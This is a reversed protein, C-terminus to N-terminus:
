HKKTFLNRIKNLVTQIFSKKEVPVLEMSQQNFTKKNCSKNNFIDSDYKELKKHNLIEENKKHVQKLFNKQELTLLYEMNIWSLIIVADRSLKQEYLPLSANYHWKYNADKNTEILNIMDKPIKNFNQLSLHHLVEDVEVLAEKYNSM